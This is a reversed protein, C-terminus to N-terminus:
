RGTRCARLPSTPGANRLAGPPKARAQVPCRVACHTVSFLGGHRAVAPVGVREVRSGRGRRADRGSAPARASQRPGSVCGAVSRPVARRPRTRGPTDRSAAPPRLV